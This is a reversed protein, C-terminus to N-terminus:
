YLDLENRVKDQDSRRTPDTKSEEERNGNYITDVKPEDSGLNQSLTIYIGQGRCFLM